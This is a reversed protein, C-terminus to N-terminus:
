TKKLLASLEKAVTANNVCSEQRGSAPGKLPDPKVPDNGKLYGHISPPTFPRDLVSASKDHGDNLFFNDDKKRYVSQKNIYFM